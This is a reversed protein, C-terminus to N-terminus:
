ADANVMKTRMLNLTSTIDAYIEPVDYGTRNSLGASEHVISVDLKHISLYRMLIDSMKIPKGSAVHYVRGSKGHEAIALIQDSADDTPM